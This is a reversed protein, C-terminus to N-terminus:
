FKLFSIYKVMNEGVIVLSFIQLPKFYRKMFDVWAFKYFHMLQGFLDDVHISHPM